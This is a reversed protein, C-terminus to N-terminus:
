QIVKMTNGDGVAGGAVEDVGTAPFCFCPAASVRNGAPCGMTPKWRRVPSSARLRGAFNRKCTRPSRTPLRGTSVVADAGAAAAATVPIKVMQITISMGVEREERITKMFEQFRDSYKRVLEYYQTKQNEDMELAFAMSNVKYNYRDYPGKRFGEKQKRQEEEQKRREERALREAEDKLREHEDLCALM